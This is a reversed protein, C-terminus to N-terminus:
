DIFSVNEVHKLIGRSHKCLLRGSLIYENVKLTKALPDGYWVCKLMADLPINERNSRPEFCTILFSAHKTDPIPKNCKDNQNLKNSLNRPM